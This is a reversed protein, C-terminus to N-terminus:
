PNSIPTVKLVILIQGNTGSNWLLGYPRGPQIRMSQILTDQSVIPRGINLDVGEVPQRSKVTSFVIKYPDLQLSGDANPKVISTLVVQTPLQTEHLEFLGSELREFYQFTGSQGVVIGSEQGAPSAISPGVVIDVGAPLWPQHRVSAGLVTSAEADAAEPEAQGDQSTSASGPVPRSMLGPFLGPSTDPLTWTDGDPGLHYQAGAITLDAIDFVQIGNTVAAPRGQPDRLGIDETLSTQGTISGRIQYILTEVLNYTEISAAPPAPTIEAPLPPVPQQALTPLAIASAIM